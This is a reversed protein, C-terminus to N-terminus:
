DICLTVRRGDDELIENCGFLPTVPACSGSRALCLGECQTGRSCQKGGDRTQKVCTRAESRGARAWTGGRRECQIQEPSKVVVPAAEAEPVAADAPEAEAAPDEPPQAVPPEPAPVEAATGDAGATPPDLPTVTIADGTIPSVDGALDPTAMQCAALLLACLVFRLNRLM